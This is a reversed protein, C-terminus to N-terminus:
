LVLPFQFYLYQLNFCLLILLCVQIPRDGTNVVKLVLAKRGINIIVSGDGYKIDGPILQEHAEPFKGLSPVVLCAMIM